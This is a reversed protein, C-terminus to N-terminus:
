PSGMEQARDASAAAQDVLHRGAQDFELARGAEDSALRLAEDLDARLRDGATPTKTTM